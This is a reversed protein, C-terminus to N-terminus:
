NNYQIIKFSPITTSQLLLTFMSWVKVFYRQAHKNLFNHHMSNCRHLETAPWTHDNLSLPPIVASDLQKGASNVPIKHMAPHSINSGSERANPLTQGLLPLSFFQHSHRTVLFCIIHMIPLSLGKNNTISMYQGFNALSWGIIATYDDVRIICLIKRPNLMLM